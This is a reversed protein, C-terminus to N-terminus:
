DFSICAEIHRAYTEPDSSRVHFEWAIRALPLQIICHLFANASVQFPPMCVHTLLLLSFIDFSMILSLVAISCREHPRCKLCLRVCLAAEAM